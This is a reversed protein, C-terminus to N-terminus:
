LGSGTGPRLNPRLEDTIVQLHYELEQSRRAISHLVLGVTMSLLGCLVLGISVLASGLRMFLSFRQLDFVVVVAPTVALFLLALGLAGFFTLPRYDRFLALITNVIVLGDRLLNVKSNGATRFSLDVPVEKIRYGREIGKITLEAEIEFGGGFLPLGKVFKRNFARYGSLIDTLRVGFISNLLSLVLRNGFRNLQKIESRAEAHLRSGVVMDAEGSLVPAMLQHVAAAPFVNDGDVMVYIDADVQRFMSQTVFGKGQRREYRVIAGAQRAQEATKDTSNNDFVYISAAPLQARFQKVVEGVTGGENYCPILVAIRLSEASAHDNRSESVNSGTSSATLTAAIETTEAPNEASM